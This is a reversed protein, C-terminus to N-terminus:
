KADVGVQGHLALPVVPVLEGPRPEVGVKDTRHHIPDRLLVPGVGTMRVEWGSLGLLLGRDRIPTGFLM